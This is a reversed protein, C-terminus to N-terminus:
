PRAPCPCRTSVPTIKGDSEQSKIRFELECIEKATAAQPFEGTLAGTSPTAVVAATQKPGFVVPFDETKKFALKLTTSEGRGNRWVLLEPHGLLAVAGGDNALALVAEQKTCEVAFIHVKPREV